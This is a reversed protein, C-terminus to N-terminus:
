LPRKMRALDPTRSGEGASKVPCRSPLEHHNAFVRSVAATGPAGEVSPLVPHDGDAVTCLGHPGADRPRAVRLVRRRAQIAQRARGRARAACPAVDPEPAGFLSKTMDNKGRYADNVKFRINLDCSSEMAQERLQIRGDGQVEADKGSAGFKTIKLVGDKAEGVLSLTGVNLRPLALAGKLKAKGDGVALGDTELSISGSAKSAKGEPMDIKIQGSLTGELPLGLFSWSLTLRSVDISDLTAAFDKERRATTTSIAM